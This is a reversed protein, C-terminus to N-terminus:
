RLRHLLRRWPRSVDVAEVGADAAVADAADGHLMRVRLRGCKRQRPRKWPVDRNSLRNPLM